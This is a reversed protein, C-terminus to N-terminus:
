PRSLDGTSLRGDLRRPIAAPNVDQLAEDLLAAPLDQYTVPRLFRRIATMGVSTHLPSSTAPWPGGHHMAWSVAVGTPWGNWVIRGARDRLERVLPRVLEVEDDEAHVTATLNGGFARAATLVEDLGDYEVVVSTPGFCEPLVAERDALLTALDTGLLTAGALGGAHPEGDVAAVVRMGPLAALEARIADHGSRIREHLMRSPAVAAVAREFAADLAHGRPLFLLGPKTCFQGVGLTFSTVFGAAIEEGRAAVAGPTIFTPNLSGMEAYFPIPVDRNAAIRSLATGGHLSGTFGAASIRRDRLADVGAREGLILAFSGAPMGAGEWAARVVEATRVSTEPHGPHAKVVVPCGAALASATDGGAVSFAFPFNSAAFVLVPGLPIQMRRLDPRPVPTAGPDAPDIVVDLFSGEDLGEAFMRLQGTTRAVEGTLRPVPLWTERAAVAVLEGAAADLADAVARLATARELRGTDALARTSAALGALVDELLADDTDPVASTTV